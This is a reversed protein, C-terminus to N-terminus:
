GEILITKKEPAKPAEKKPAAKKAAPKREKKPKPQDLGHKHAWEKYTMTAPVMEVEGTVQRLDHM